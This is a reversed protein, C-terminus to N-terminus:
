VVVPRIIRRGGGFERSMTQSRLIGLLRSDERRQWRSLEGNDQSPLASARSYPQDLNIVHVLLEATLFRRLYRVDINERYVMLHAVFATKLKPIALGPVSKRFAASAAAFPAPVWILLTPRTM